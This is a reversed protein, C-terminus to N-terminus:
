SGIHIQTGFAKIVAAMKPVLNSPALVLLPIAHM